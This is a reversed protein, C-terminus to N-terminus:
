KPEEKKAALKAALEPHLISVVLLIGTTGLTGTSAKGEINAALLAGIGTLILWTVRALSKELRDFRKADEIRHTKFAHEVNALTRMMRGTITDSDIGGPGTIAEDPPADQITPLSRLRRRPNYSM